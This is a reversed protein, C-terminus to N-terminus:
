MNVPLKDLEGSYIVELARMDGGLNQGNTTIQNEFSEHQVRRFRHIRERQSCIEEWCGSLSILSNPIYM